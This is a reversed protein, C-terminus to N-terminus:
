FILKLPEGLEKDFFNYSDVIKNNTILELHDCRVGDSIINLIVPFRLLNNINM